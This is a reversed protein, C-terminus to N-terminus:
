EIWLKGDDGIYVNREAWAGCAETLRDGVAGAQRDWFGTGHGNRTLWFNHGAFAEKSDGDPSIPWIEYFEELDAANAEQFAECEALAKAVSEPAFDDLDYHQDLPDGGSDDSEDTGLWLACHLYGRLFDDDLTNPNSM